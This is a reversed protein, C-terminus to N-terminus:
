SSPATAEAPRRGESTSTLKRFLNITEDSPSVDLDNRLIARCQNFTETIRAVQGAAARSRMMTRWAAECRRDINLLRAAIAHAASTNSRAEPRDLLDSLAAVLTGQLSATQMAVWGFPGDDGPESTVQLGAGYIDLLADATDFTTNVVLRQFDVLDVSVEDLRLRVTTRTVEFLPADAQISRIRSLLQRLNNYAAASNPWLFRAADRRSTAARSSTLALYTALVFALRPLALPRGAFDILAADGFLRLRPTGTQVADM